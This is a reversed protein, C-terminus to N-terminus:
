TLHQTQAIRSFEFRFFFVFLGIKMANRGIWEM